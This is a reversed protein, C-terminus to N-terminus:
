YKKRIIIRNFLDKGNLQPKVPREEVFDFEDKYKDVDKLITIPVGINEKYDKLLNLYELKPCELADYNDYKQFNVKLKPKENIRTYKFDKINNFFYCAVQKTENSFLSYFKQVRNSIKYEREIMKKYTKVTGLHTLPLILIFNKNYEEIIDLLEQKISFPPNTIVFDCEIFYKKNCDARFDGDENKIITEDEGDFIYIKPEEDLYTCILKKLELYNFKDKFYKYFNSFEPNDCPLYIIKNKLYEKYIEMEKEIDKYYTYYEDNKAKKAKKLKLNKNKTEDVKIEKELHEMREKIRM